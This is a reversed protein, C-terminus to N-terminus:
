LTCIYLLLGVLSPFIVCMMKIQTKIRTVEYKETALKDEIDDLRGIIYFLLEKQTVACNGNLKKYEDAKKKIDM